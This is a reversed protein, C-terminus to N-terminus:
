SFDFVLRNDPVSSVVVKTGIPPIATGVNAAYLTVGLDQTYTPAAGEIEAGAVAVPHIAYYAAASTPYTSVSITIGLFTTSGVGGIPHWAGFPDLVAWFYDDLFTQQSSNVVDISPGAEALDGSAPDVWYVKAKGEGPTDDARPTILGDAKCLYRNNPQVAGIQIGGRGQRVVLGPGGSVNALRRLESELLNLREATLVDGRSFERQKYIPM